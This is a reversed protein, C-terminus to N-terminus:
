TTASSDPRKRRAQQAAAIQEYLKDDVVIRCPRKKYRTLTDCVRAQVKAADSPPFPTGDDWVLETPVQVEIVYNRFLLFRRGRQATEDVYQYSLTLKRIGEIYRIYNPHAYNNIVYGDGNMVYFARSDLSSWDFKLAM